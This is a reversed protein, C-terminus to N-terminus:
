QVDNSTASSTSNPINRKYIAAMILSVIAGGIIKNFYDGMLANGLSTQNISDVMKELWSESIIQMTAIQEVDAISSSKYNDLMQPVVLSGYMYVMLGYLVGGCVITYFGTRFAEGFSIFGDHIKRHMLISRAIFLIPIWVGFWSAPGLPNGVMATIIVAFAFAAVGYYAGFRLSTQFYNHLM